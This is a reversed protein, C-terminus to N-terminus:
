SFLAQGVFGGKRVGRPVAFIASGVHRIYENLVDTALSAARRHVAGALAPVVPLVARRRPPRARQQRRRLQLRPAADARRRELSHHALRVHAATDILPAGTPGEAEFDPETFETGGSLPAGEGKTRGIIRRRSASGCATGPRSSCRSRAPSSTRAAPSGRPATPPRCGSTSTSADLADEALINATGDKFGFLNRPTQQSPRPRRPAASAWRRGASARAASRSAASTASPTCPSRRITPAPRSACTAAAGSPSAARRRPIAAAARPGRAPARRHRLPRRRRCGRVPEARLRVHDDPRQGVPRAGRRHRGAARRDSGGIAGGDRQGRPGPDHAGGCVVLGALLEISSTATRADREHRLRRLAPPGPRADHHGGPARRLVPVRISAAPRRGAACRRAVGAPPWPSALRQGGRRRRRRGGRCRPLGLLARRSVGDAPRPETM